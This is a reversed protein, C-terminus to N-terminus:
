SLSPCFGELIFLFLDMVIPEDMTCSCSSFVGVQYSAVPQEPLKGIFDVAALIV